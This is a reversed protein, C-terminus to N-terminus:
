FEVIKIEFPQIYLNKSNGTMNVIPVFDQDLDSKDIYINNEACYKFYFIQAVFNSLYKYRMEDTIVTKNFYAEKDRSDKFALDDGVSICIDESHNKIKFSLRYPSEVKICDINRVDIFLNKLVIFSPIIKDQDINSAFPFVTNCKMKVSNKLFRELTYRSIILLIFCIGICVGITTVLVIAAINNDLVM